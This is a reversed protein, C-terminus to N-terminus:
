IFIVCLTYLTHGVYIRPYYSLPLTNAKCAFLGSNLGRSSWMLDNQIGDAHHSLPLMQDRFQPSNIKFIRYDDIQRHLLREGPSFTGFDILNKVHHVPEQVYAPREIVAFPSNRDYIEPLHKRLPFPM